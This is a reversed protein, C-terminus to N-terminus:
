KRLQIDLRANVDEGLSPDNIVVNSHWLQLTDADYDVVFTLTDPYDYFWLTQISTDFEWIGQGEKVYNIPTLGLMLNIYFDINYDVIASDNIEQFIFQGQVGDADGKFTAQTATDFPNEMQGEYAVSFIKWGDTLRTEFPGSARPPLDSNSSINDCSVLSFCTLFVLGVFLPKNDM